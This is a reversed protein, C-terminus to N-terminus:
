LSNENTHDIFMNKLWFLASYILLYVKVHSCFEIGLPNAPTVLMAVTADRSFIEIWPQVFFYLILRLLNYKRKSLSEPALFKEATKTLENSFVSIVNTM